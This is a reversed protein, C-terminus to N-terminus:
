LQSNVLVSIVIPEAGGLVANAAIGADVASGGQGLIGRGPPAPQALLLIPLSLGAAIRLICQM